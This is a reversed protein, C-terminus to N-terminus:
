QSVVRKTDLRKYTGGENDFTFNLVVANSEVNNVEPPQDKEDLGPKISEVTSPGGLIVTRVDSDKRVIRVADPWGLSQSIDNPYAPQNMQDVLSIMNSICSDPFISLYLSAKQALALLEETCQHRFKAFIIRQQPTCSPAKSAYYLFESVHCALRARFNNQFIYVGMYLIDLKLPALPVEIVIDTIAKENSLPYTAKEVGDLDQLISPSSSLLKKLDGANILRRIDSCIKTCHYAFICSRLEIYEDPECYTYIDRIWTSSEKLYDQGTVLAQTQLTTYILWFMSRTDNTAFQEHGRLSLLKALAQCHANWGSSGTVSDVDERINVLLEYLGLLWIGLLTNDSKYQNSDRLTSKVVALAARYTKVRDSVTKFCPYMNARYACGIANCAQYLVSGKEAKSAIRPIVYLCDVLNFSFRQMVLPMFQDDWSAVLSYRLPFRSASSFLHGGTLDSVDANAHAANPM